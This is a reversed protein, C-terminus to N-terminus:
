WVNHVENLEHEQVQWQAVVEGESVDSVVSSMQFNGYNRLYFGSSSTACLHFYSLATFTLYLHPLHLPM